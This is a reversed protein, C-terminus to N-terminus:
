DRIPPVYREAPSCRMWRCRLCHSSISSFIQRFFISNLNWQQDYSWWTSQQRVESTNPPRPDAEWVTFSQPIDISYTSDCKPIEGEPPDPIDDPQLNFANTRCWVTSVCRLEYKKYQYAGSRAWKWVTWNPCYKERHIRQLNMQVKVENTVNSNTRIKKWTITMHISTPANSSNPGNEM